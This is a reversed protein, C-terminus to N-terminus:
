ATRSFFVMPFYYRMKGESTLEAYTSQGGGPTSEFGDM